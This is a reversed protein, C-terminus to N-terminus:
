LEAILRNFYKLRVVARHMIIQVNQKLVSKSYVRRRGFQTKYVLQKQQSKRHHRLIRDTALLKRKTHM